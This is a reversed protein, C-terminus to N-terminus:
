LCAAVVVWAGAVVAVWACAAEVHVEGHGLTTGASVDSATRLGAVCDSAVGVVAVAIGSGGVAIVPVEATIVVAVGGGTGTVVSWHVAIIVIGASV